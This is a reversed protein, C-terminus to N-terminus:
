YGGDSAMTFETQRGDPHVIMGHTQYPDTATGTGTVTTLGATGDAGVVATEAGGDIPTTITTTTSGDSNPHVVLLSTQYPDAATGSGNVIPKAVTGDAGVVLPARDNVGYNGSRAVPDIVTTSGDPHLVLISTQYTTGYGQSLEQAVTGDSGVVATGRPSGTGPTSTVTTGDPHILTLRVGSGDITTLTATGDKATNVGFYSYGPIPATTATTGDPHTITVTSQYPSTASGTGTQSTQYRTGDPAVSTYVTGSGATSATSTVAAGAPDINVTVPITKTSGHGDDLTVNFTDVDAGATSYAALRQATTPTYSYSGNSYVTVSGGGTSTTPGTYTLTDYDPDTYGVSSGVQGTSHDVFSAPTTAPAQAAQNAPDIAVTVPVSQTFGHGDSVTVSFTDTKASASANDAAAAHRQTDTPTYTYAGTTPNVTVTGGGATAWTTATGGAPNTYHLTDTDPDTYGITSTVTGDGHNVTTAPPTNPAAPAQNTPDIPVHVTVTQSSGHGDSVIVDFSDSAAAGGAAAPHRDAAEPTYTYAGTSNVIVTGGGATRGSVPGTYTLADNDPDTYGVTSTRPATATIPSPPPRRTHEPSDPAQNTPDIPCM